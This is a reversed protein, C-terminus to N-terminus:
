SWRPCTTKTSTLLHLALVLYATAAQHRPVDYGRDPQDSAPVHQMSLLQRWCAQLALAGDLAALAAFQRRGGGVICLATASPKPATPRFFEPMSLGAQFQVADINM